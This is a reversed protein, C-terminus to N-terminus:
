DFSGSIINVAINSSSAYVVEAIAGSSQGTIIDGAVFPDGILSISALTLDKHTITVTYNEPSGGSFANANVSALDDNGVGSFVPTTPIGITESSTYQGVDLITGTVGAPTTEFLEGPQFNYIGYNESFFTPKVTINTETTAVGNFSRMIQTEKTSSDRTFLSDVTLEGDGNTYLISNPDTNGVLNGIAISGSSNLAVTCDDTGPACQPDLIAGPAYGGSPPAAFVLVGYGIISFLAILVFLVKKRSYTQM